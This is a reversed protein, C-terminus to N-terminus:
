RLARPAPKTSCDACVANIISTFDASTPGDPYLSRVAKDFAAVFKDVESEPVFAYDPSVCIQGGNSLLETTAIVTCISGYNLAFGLGFGLLGLLTMGTWTEM